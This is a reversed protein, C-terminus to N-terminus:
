SKSRWKTLQEILNVQEAITARPDTLCFSYRNSEMNEKLKKENLSMSLESRWNTDDDGYVAGNFL